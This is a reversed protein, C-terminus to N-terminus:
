EAYSTASKHKARYITSWLKGVGSAIFLALAIDAALGLPNFQASRSAVITQNTGDCDAKQHTTSAYSYTIPFGAKRDYSTSSVTATPMELCAFSEDGSSFSQSSGPFNELTKGQVVPLLFLATLLAFILVGILGARSSSQKTKPEKEPSALETNIRDLDAPLQSASVKNEEQEVRPTIPTAVYGKM